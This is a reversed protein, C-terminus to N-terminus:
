AGPHTGVRRWRGQGSESMGPFEYERAPFEAVLRELAGIARAHRGLAIDAEIRGEVAALRLEELRASELALAEVECM